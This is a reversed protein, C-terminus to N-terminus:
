GEHATREKMMEDAMSYAWHAVKAEQETNATIMLLSQMAQAAFYDRITIGGTAPNYHNFESGPFAKPNKIHHEM